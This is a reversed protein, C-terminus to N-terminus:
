KFDTAVNKFINSRQNKARKKRNLKLCNSFRANTMVILIYYKMKMFNESKKLGDAVTVNEIPKKM